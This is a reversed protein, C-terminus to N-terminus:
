IEYSFFSFLSSFFPFFSLFFHKRTIPVFLVSSPLFLFLFSLSLFRCPSKFKYLSVIPLNIVDRSMLWLSISDLTKGNPGFYLKLPSITPLRINHRITTTAMDFYLLPIRQSFYGRVRSIRWSGREKETRRHSRQTTLLMYTSSPSLSNCLLM